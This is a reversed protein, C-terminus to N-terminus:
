CQAASLQPTLPSYTMFSGDQAGAYRAAEAASMVAIGRYPTTKQLGVAIWWDFPAGAPAARDAAVLVQDQSVAPARAPGEFLNRQWSQYAPRFRASANGGGGGRRYAASDFVAASDVTYMAMYSSRASGCVKFRQATIFGPVALLVKLYGAYWANWESELAPMGIIHEVMYIM